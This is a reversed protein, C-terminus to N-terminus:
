RVTKPHVERMAKLLREAVASLIEDSQLNLPARTLRPYSRNLLNACLHHLRDVSRGLLAGVIPEASTEGGAGALEDLYRQVAITTHDDAM